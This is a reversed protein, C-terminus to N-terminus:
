LISYGREESPRSYTDCIRNTDDIYRKIGGADELTNTAEHHLAQYHSRVIHDVNEVQFQNGFSQQGNDADRLPLQEQIEAFHQLAQDRQAPTIEGCVTRIVQYMVFARLYDSYDHASLSRHNHGGAADIEDSLEKLCQALGSLRNRLAAHAAAPIEPLPPMRSVSQQGRVARPNATPAQTRRQPLLRQMFQRCRAMFGPPHHTAVAPATTASAAPLAQASISNIPPQGNLEVSGRTFYKRIPTTATPVNSRPVTPTVHSRSAIEM